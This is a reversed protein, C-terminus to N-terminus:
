RPVLFVGSRVKPEFYTSKPPLTAGRDVVALMQDLTIPHLSFVVGGEDDCREVLRELGADGPAYDLRNGQGAEDLELIPGLIEEQLTVSDFGHEDAEPDALRFWRGDTYCGIVGQREPLQLASADLEDVDFRDALRDIFGSVSLGNRWHSWRHFATVRLQNDPFVAGLVAHHPGPQAGIRERYGIAASVRHHGDVIYQTMPALLEVLEAAADDDARWLQQSLGDGRNFDLLPGAGTVAMVVDDVRDDHRYTTAVPSSAYGTTALHDGLLSARHPRIREHPLLTGADFAALPLDGVVATQEHGDRCLRYIWIGPGALPGYAGIDILRQLAESNRAVVEEPGIEEAFDEPSRTVHLFVYPDEEMLARRRAPGLGDSSPSVVRTAWEPRVLHTTVPRLTASPAWVRNM